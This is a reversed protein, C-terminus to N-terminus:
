IYQGVTAWVAAHDDPMQIVDPMGHRNKADFADRRETYLVRMTGGQGKGKKDTARDTKVDSLFNGFLVADSWRSVVEWTKGHCAATYRDFDTGLPNKFTAVKCHSLIVVAVGASRVKDLKSLLSLVDAVSVDPGRQYCSFGREGWDGGFDRNCVHEHCMREIGGLADLVLTQIGQTDTALADISALLDSWATAHIVPVEPVRGSSLLTLYGTENGAMVVGAGPAQSGLTTKGWGEVANLVIRFPQKTAAPKGFRTATGPTAQAAPKMTRAAVPPPISPM